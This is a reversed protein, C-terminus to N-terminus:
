SQKSLSTDLMSELEVPEVCAGDPEMVAKLGAAGSTM